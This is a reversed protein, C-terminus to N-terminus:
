GRVLIFLAVSMGVLTVITLALFLEGVYRRKPLRLDRRKPLYYLSVHKSAPVPEPLESMKVWGMVTARLLIPDNVIQEFARESLIPKHHRMWALLNDYYEQEAIGRQKVAGMIKWRVTTDTLWMMSDVTLIYLVQCEFPYITFMSGSLSSSVMGMSSSASIKPSALRSM